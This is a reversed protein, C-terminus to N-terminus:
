VVQSTVQYHGRIDFCIAAYSCTIPWTVTTHSTTNCLKHLLPFLQVLQVPPIQKM